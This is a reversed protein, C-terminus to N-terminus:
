ERSSQSQSELEEVRQRLAAMEDAMQSIEESTAMGLRTRHSTILDTASRRNGDDLSVQELVLFGDNTVVAVTGNDPRRHAVQGPTGLIETEPQEAHARWVTLRQGDLYTYAGPLPESSARVLRDLYRASRSWDIRSDEPIRPYCRLAEGPDEPQSDAKITGAELGDVVEVFLEPTVQESYAYVDGIQTEPTLPFPQKTLIPGSDLGTDMFHLTIVVEDEGQLMAWNPAANGRYKPLDGAHCNIIGHTVANRAESGVITKWNVSVGVEAQADEIEEVVDPQNITNTVLCPVGLETALSRFDDVTVDYEPAAECTLILVVDHGAAELARISEYLVTTRGLAIVRM